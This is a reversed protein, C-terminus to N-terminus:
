SPSERLRMRSPSLCVVVVAMSGLLPSSCRHGRHLSARGFSCGNRVVAAAQRRHSPCTGHGSSRHPRAAHILSAVPTAALTSPPSAPVAGRRVAAAVPSRSRPSPSSGRAPKSSPSSSSSQSSSSSSSASRHHVLIFSSMSPEGAIQCSPNPSLSQYWTFEIIFNPILSNM